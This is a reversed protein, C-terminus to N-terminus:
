SELNPTAYSIAVWELARAQLIGPFASGPPSGDIPDRLTLCSQLSKAAAAAIPLTRCTTQRSYIVWQLLGQHQSLNLASLSFLMMPHSAQITNGICYVHVQAFEPFHHPVPLGPTRCDVSACLTPYSETVSCLVVCCSLCLLSGLYKLNFPYDKFTLEFNLKLM